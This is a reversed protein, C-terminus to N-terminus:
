KRKLLKIFFLIEDGEEPTRKYVFEKVEINGSSLCLHAIHLNLLFPREGCCACKKGNRGNRTLSSSVHSWNVQTHSNLVARSVVSECSTICYTFM